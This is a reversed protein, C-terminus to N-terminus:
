LSTGENQAITRAAAATEAQIRMTNRAIVAALQDIEAKDVSRVRREAELDATLDDVQATLKVVERRAHDTAFKRLFKM